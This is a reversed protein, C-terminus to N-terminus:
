KPSAPYLSNTTHRLLIAAYVAIAPPTPAAAFNATTATVTVIIATAIATHVFLSFYGTFSSAQVLQVHPLAVNLDVM